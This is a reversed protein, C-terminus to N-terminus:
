AYVEKEEQPLEFFERGVQQLKTIVESPIQHKVVQFLGWKSRADAISRVLTKKNTNSFDVIPAERARGDFTTLGPQETEPRIFEPPITDTSVSSIAQVREQDTM